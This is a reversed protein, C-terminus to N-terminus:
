NWRRQVSRGGRLSCSHSGGLTGAPRWAARSGREQVQEFGLLPTHCPRPWRKRGTLRHSCDGSLEMAGADTGGPLGVELQHPIERKAALSRVFSLLRGHTIQMRDMIKISVGDGLRNVAMSPPVGPVDKALTTDVAVAVDRPIRHAAVTAGRTGIEEQVSGVAVVEVSGRGLRRLAEIIVFLGVRDDIAKAVVRDGTRELERDWTVPDGKSVRAVADDRSLGVDVFFEEVKSVKAEEGPMGFEAETLVGLLPGDATNVRVRQGPCTKPFIGGVPHVRLFGDEEVHKVLFGVEDMHAAVMVRPGGGGGTGHRVAVLNGMADVSVEDVLDAMAKRAIERVADERASVGPAGCLDALLSLDLDPM